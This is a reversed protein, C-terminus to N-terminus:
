RAIRMAMKRKTRKNTKRSPFRCIRNWDSWLSPREDGSNLWCQVAVDRFLTISIFLLLLSCKTTLKFAKNQSQSQSRTILWLSSLPSLCLSLALAFVCSILWNFQFIVTFHFFSLWKFHNHHRKGNETTIWKWYFLAQASRRSLDPGFCLFLM